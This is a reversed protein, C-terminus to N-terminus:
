DIIDRYCYISRVNGLVSKDLAEEVVRRPFHGHCHVFNTAGETVVGMHVALGKIALLIVNGDLLKDTLDLNLNLMARVVVPDPFPAYNKFEFPKAAGTSIGAYM